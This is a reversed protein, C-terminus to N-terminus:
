VPIRDDIASPRRPRRWLAEPDPPAGRDQRLEHWERWREEVVADLEVGLAIAANVLYGLPPSTMQGRELRRYTPESVGIADALEEQTVGRSMRVRALKTEAKTGPDRRAPVVPM